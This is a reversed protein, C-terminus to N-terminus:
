PSRIGSTNCIRLIRNIADAIITAPAVVVAMTADSADPLLGFAESSHALTQSSLSVLVSHELYQDFREHESFDSFLLSDGLMFHNVPGSPLRDPNTIIQKTDVLRNTMGACAPIWVAV